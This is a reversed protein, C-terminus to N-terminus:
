VHSIIIQQANNSEIDNFQRLNVRIIPDYTLYNTLTAYLRYYRNGMLLLAGEALEQKMTAVTYPITTTDGWTVTGVVTSDPFNAVLSDVATALLSFGGIIGQNGIVNMYNVAQNRVDPDQFVVRADTFPNIKGISASGVTTKYLEFENADIPFAQADFNIDKPPTTSEVIINLDSVITKEPIFVEGHSASYTLESVLHTTQMNEAGTIEDILYYRGNHIEVNGQNILMRLAGLPVNNVIPTSGNASLTNTIVIKEDGEDSAILDDVQKKDLSFGIKITNGVTLNTYDLELSDDGQVVLTGNPDTFPNILTPSSGLVDTFEQENLPFVRVDSVILEDELLGELWFSITGNNEIKVSPNKTFTMRNEIIPKDPILRVLKKTNTYNFINLGKDFSSPLESDNSGIWVCDIGTTNRNQNLWEDFYTGNSSFIDPYLTGNIEIKWNIREVEHNNYQLDPNINLLPTGAVVVGASGKFVCLTRGANNLAM